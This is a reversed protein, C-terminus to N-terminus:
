DLYRFDVSAFLAHFVETWAEDRGTTGAAQLHRLTLARESDTPARGLTARWAFDLGTVDDLARVLLRRAAAQAQERVWPHNLLFLAQTPVATTHRRGTVMGPSPFDFVEFLEPLANRFVPAYVSRVPETFQFGFDATQTAPFTPGGADFKLQGSAALMADRLQEAALRRRNARALLRNEPDTGRSEDQGRGADGASSQQYTRSLVIERVLKKTSWGADIFRTALHDLLEPHSPTEGTTGFNDPTRVIGEGLLWLWVRNVYIRATLPHSPSAIWEALQRRGSEKEPFRQLAIPQGFTLFGRPAVAGLNYVSGRVHIPVDGFTEGEEVGMRKPRRPGTEKLKKLRAELSKLDPPAAPGPKDRDTRGTRLAAVPPRPGREPPMEDASLFQVADATVHGRTGENSILVYGFGNAEFRFQGLSVFRGDLLPPEQQNVQLTTEGDAHFVTVPVNTARSTGPQYAFRVEYRGARTLEPAFSLTKEGKGRQDDHLYGDGIYHKSFTSHTWAGVPRARASDVILGALESPSV